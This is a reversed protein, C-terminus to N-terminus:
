MGVYALVNFNADLVALPLFEMHYGGDTQVHRFAVLYVSGVQYASWEWGPKPQVFAALHQCVAADADTTLLRVQTPMYSSTGSAQRDEAYAPMTLFRGTLARSIPHDAPCGAQAAAAPPNTCLAALALVIMKIM